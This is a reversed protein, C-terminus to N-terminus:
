PTASAQSRFIIVGAFSLFNNFYNLFSQLYLIRGFHFLEYFKRKCFILKPYWRVSIILSVSKLIREFIIGIIISWFGFGSFACVLITIVRIVRCIIEIFALRKMRIEKYILISSVSSVASLIFNVSLYILIWQVESQKFFMSAFPAIMISLFALVVGAMMNIWFVTSLDEDDVEKKHVLAAGLGFHGFLKVIGTILVAM